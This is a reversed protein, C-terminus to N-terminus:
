PKKFTSHLNPFKEAIEPRLTCCTNVAKKFERLCDLERCLDRSWLKSLNFGHDELKQLLKKEAIFNKKLQQEGSARNFIEQLQKRQMNLCYLIEHEFNRNQQFLVINSKGVHNKIDHFNKIFNQCGPVNIQDTDCVVFVKSEKKSIPRTVTHIKHNPLSWLNVIQIRGLFLSSVLHKETDGEVLFIYQM